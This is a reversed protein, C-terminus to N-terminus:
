TEGKDLGMVNLLEQYTNGGAGLLLLSLAGYISMPSFVETKENRTRLLTEGVDHAMQLVNTALTNSIQADFRPDSSVSPFQYDTYVANNQTPQPVQDVTPNNMKHLSHIQIILFKQHFRDPTHTDSM